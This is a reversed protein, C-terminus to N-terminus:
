KDVCNTKRTFDDIEFGALFVNLALNEKFRTIIEQVDRTSMKKIKSIELITKKDMTKIRQEGSMGRV